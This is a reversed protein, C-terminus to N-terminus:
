VDSSRRRGRLLGDRRGRGALAEDGWFCHFVGGVEHADEEQLIRVVDDDAERNHIILPKREKRALRIQRRFVEQQVDAHPSTTTTTSGSKAWARRSPTAALAERPRLRWNMPPMKHCLASPRGRDGLNRRSAKHSSSRRSAVLRLTDGVCIIDVGAERARELVEQRDPDFVEATVHAHTDILRM